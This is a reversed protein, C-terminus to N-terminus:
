RRLLDLDDDLREVRDRVLKHADQVGKNYWFKAGKDQILDVLIDAALDGLREGREELFWYQLDAALQSRHEPELALPDIKTQRAM